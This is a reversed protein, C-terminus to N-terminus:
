RINKPDFRSSHSPRTMYCSQPFYLHICPKPPLVQTFSVVQFVLAYIPPDEPLPIPVHVPNIQSLHRASTFGTNFRRTGYFAPFNKVLQSGTLKELLVRRWPNLLYIFLSSTLAPTRQSLLADWTLAM